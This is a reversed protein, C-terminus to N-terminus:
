NRDEKQGILESIPIDPPIKGETILQALEVWWRITDRLPQGMFETLDPKFDEKKSM